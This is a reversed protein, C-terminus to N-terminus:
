DNKKVVKKVVRVKRVKKPENGNSKGDEKGHGLSGSEMKVKDIPSNGFKEISFGKMLCDVCFGNMDDILNIACYEKIKSWESDPIIVERTEM